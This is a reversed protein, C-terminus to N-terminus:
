SGFARGTSSRTRYSDVIGFFRAAPPKRVAQAAPIEQQWKFFIACDRTSELVRRSFLTKRRASSLQDPLGLVHLGPRRQHRASGPCLDAGLRRESSLAPLGPSCTACMSCRRSDAREMAACIFPSAFTFTSTPSPPTRAFPAVSTVTDEPQWRYSARWRTGTGDLTGSLSALLQARRPHAPWCNRWGM